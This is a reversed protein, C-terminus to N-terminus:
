SSKPLFNPWPPVSEGDEFQSEAELYWGTPYGFDDIGDITTAEMVVGIKQWNTMIDEISQYRCVNQEPTGSSKPVSPDKIPDTGPGRLTFWQAKETYPKTSTFVAVPRQAPWSWFSYDDYSSPGYSPPASTPYVTTENTSPPHNACSNYDTHWPIAMLKLIDGPQIGTTSHFPVYGETLFAQGPTINGYDLQQSNIRFPGTNSNEWDDIYLDKNRVIWTLDIGPSFRGGLCNLLTNQDLLEGAGLVSSTENCKKLSWQTLFFYQTKTVSLFSQGSDGLSLPMYPSPSGDPAYIDFQDQNPNRLLTFFKNTPSGSNYTTPRGAHPNGGSTSGPYLPLNAIWQQLEAGEFVGTVQNDFGPIYNDNFSTGDYLEPILRLDRVWADYIDEWLSVVNKIQPAYSPDTAAVWASGQVALQSGDSLVIVASVPGDGADDFWGNNDVPGTLKQKGWNASKGYGGTVILRGFEDTQLEGLSTIPGQPEILDNFADGPFSKPYNAIESVTKSIDNYYSATTDKDFAVAPTNVGSITRPGPDIFLSKLRQPDAAPAGATPYDPNRLPPLNGNSFTTAGGGGAPDSEYFQAKKNAMHVSWIIDTVMQGNVSSGIKVEQLTADPGLPYTEEGTIAAYQYIKFRAAQRKFKQETTNDRLDDSTITTSETGKKIPLGGSIDGSTDGAATEPALYYEDSNGVRAIGIAPHIRFNLDNSM